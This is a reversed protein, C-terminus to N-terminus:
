PRHHPSRSLFSWNGRFSASNIPQVWVHYIGLPLPTNIKSQTGTVNLTRLFPSKGTSINSVWVDYRTAGAVTTWTVTPTSTTITGRPATLTPRPAVTFNKAASWKTRKGDSYIGQIWVRYEGLEMDAVPTYSLSTVSQRIIATNNTKSSIWVDYSAVDTISDWSIVPRATVNQAAPGNVVPTPLQFIPFLPTANAVSGAPRRATPTTGGIEANINDALTQLSAVIEPNSAAVNTIEGIETSLNYLRPNVMADTAVGNGFADPQSTIALKWPGRRVAQLEYNNFYFHAERPSQTSTGSLLPSIDRGDIVPTAPVTGGALAVATPLIDITGVVADSVSSAAITGPWWAIAPVRMGGEWTTTKGGRLPGASGGDSGKVLWPGNDSTFVVLTKADLQNQRLTDLIQGVSWDVEEVWDGFRGNNSKGQFAAGPHIPTHVANHPLYLFFPQSKNENIFSIAENTYREVLPSQQDETLLEQVTDDRLLPVVAAGGQAPRIQMDNSYPIGFYHDFGQRTPLFPPQDGLHWEGICMTAYGQEKLREAITVEAPHLGNGDSPRFVGPVSVRAQYCGTMLQARSASCVTAAYFSTLKMGENAMRDINPTSQLTAGFPGVDSYGLDDIFIIVINPKVVHSAFASAGSWAVLSIAAFSFAIHADSM